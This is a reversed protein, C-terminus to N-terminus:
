EIVNEIGVVNRLDLIDYSTLFYTSPLLIKKGNQLLLIIRFNTGARFNDVLKKLAGLNSKSGIRVQLTRVEPAPANSYSNVTGMPKTDAVFNSFNGSFKQVKDATIRIQEGIKSCSVDLLVMNGVELLDRCSSLVESFISVDAAGSVDSVQLICFKHQNKTTKYIVNNIVVAVKARAMEKAEQLSPFRMKRLVDVYQRMPHSSIYFGIASFEQQLKDSDNWEPVETLTPTSEEEFLLAQDSSTKMAMLQDISEFLQRRNSHLRDFVGAKIFHELIKRTFVRLHSLRKVFDFISVFDGHQEREEVVARVAQEGSGKIATLSYRISNTAYDILFEHGSLNIDPPLININNTEADQYYAYLKDTNTMDITMTAAFFEIPYNAKLFATQYTLLGYPTAHSKNFGYGAFKNMQEFLHEAIPQAMGNQIAGDIFRRKQALMENKDKKGMARRLIDAQGLSYGGIEQAIRMVQEQYVMVGYTPALIPELRPDIYQIPELGHKCAIYKPIDDMPGPRYLAVLAILDEVRDPQMKRLVDRMGASEIQFVGVCNVIRLLEFTRKDDMPFDNIKLYIGRKEINKLTKDIVTLTKLGLFDFKILGANEVYKMSFQTVPMISRQDKYLPVIDQLNQDSIVVGAAHVSAHRYLGELCIAINMLNKVQPDSNMLNQLLEESDIAQQLTMPHTPHFPIMKSIKDMFGYPMALVRGVDKVVARAQLKGFTIIQAVCQYGYKQQVYRIVEDRREQCFDIDFDPMSVRDPNLFREFFLGFYIPDVDTIEVSWAVISGAGSGRGPGVPIDQLKAWQVYDAIILFYGSFGMKKIMELEYYLRDFYKERIEQYNGNVEFVALKKGLGIVSMSLLEEDQTRGSAPKFQPMMTKKKLLAFYCRRAIHVTNDIAEPIDCFLEAMELSPKFYFEPSSSIRDMEYITKGQAICILADHAKFDKQYPFCVNNTAVLPIRQEYALGIAQEEIKNEMENNHRSLEIYLRNPFYRHMFRLYECASDMDNATLFSGLSGYIGGTLVLLEASHKALLDLTIEPYFESSSNLHAQSVLQILNHYGEGSKAYLLISTARNQALATCNDGSSHQVNLQCGIIPQIGNEMCAKSFEMAGFLNNTDTVAVAPMYNQQCLAVLEEMKIAGEALSYASHLRLHIFRSGNM